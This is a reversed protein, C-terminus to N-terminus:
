PIPRGEVEAAMRHLWEELNTYGDGDDDGNPNAPTTLPRHNEALVPWGGVQSPSDIIRGTNTRVEQVIRLDVADRDAPRAGANSLVWSEVNANPLVVLGSIWVQPTTAVVASGEDNQVLTWPDSPPAARDWSNDNIYFLSGPKVGSYIRIPRGTPSNVGRLYVNGVVSNFQAATNDVDDFYTAKSVGYNYIVNNVIVGTTNGKFWPNRDVHHAMVNGMFTINKSGQGILVGKSHAGEPHISNNLGEAIILNSFTIDHRVGSSSTGTSLNEDVGWSISCHDLVINYKEQSGGYFEIGDREQTFGPEDGPRFRIHQILVDHTNIRFTGGRLTIGPSPATQGAITTFPHTVVLNEGVRITGSVEFIIVVPGAVSLAARLSGAGTDNLNTVRVITGGRGGRTSSGFGQAGPFARLGAPPPPPPPPPAVVTIASTDSKGESLAYVNANGVTLGTVLGSASVTAVSPNLSTWTIARGTLTNGSADRLVATLQVTRSTEVSVSAPTVTVSAVAAPPPPPPPTVVTITATDSKGESLAYVNASGSKVGTVLGSASVTAVGPTLSTWTVTRGILTGGNADRVVATLQVTKSSDVSTTAPTVTVSAVPVMTVTITSAGSQGESTGTITASGAAVATVLGSTSVRAIGANSSSWAVARGTLTVGDADRTIAQLQVTQGVDVSATPPSLTVSAVPVTTATILSTDSVGESTAVVFAIGTAAATVLGANTVRAITTNSSSWTVPQEPLPNGSTDRPIAQLQVSKGVGLIAANPAVEISGVLKLIVDVVRTTSCGLGVLVLTAYASIRLRQRM